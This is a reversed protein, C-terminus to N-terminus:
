FTGNFIQFNKFFFIFINNFIFASFIRYITEPFEKKYIMSFDNLQLLSVKEMYKLKALIHIWTLLLCLSILSSGFDPLILPSILIRQQRTSYQHEVVKLFLSSKNVNKVESLTIYHILSNIFKFYKKYIFMSGRLNLLFPTINIM